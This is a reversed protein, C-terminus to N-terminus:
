ARGYEPGPIFSTCGNAYKETGICRSRIGCNSNPVEHGEDSSCGSAGDLGANILTILDFVISYCNQPPSSVNLIHKLYSDFSQSFTRKSALFRTILEASEADLPTTLVQTRTGPAAEPFPSIRTLLFKKRKDVLLASENDANNTAGSNNHEQKNTEEDEDSSSSSSSSSSDESSSHRRKRKSKSSKKKKPEDTQPADGGTNNSTKRTIDSSAEMYWQAVYFHRAHLLAPDSPSSVALYDLLLSQLHQLLSYCRKLYRWGNTQDRSSRYFFCVQIRDEPNNEKENEKDGGKKKKKHKKPKTEEASDNNTDERVQKLLQDITDTRLQSTVADRRLRAAVVGLYELSVVRLSMDVNKNSFNQVLLKGLLSLLLEAAPWEPKNVTSLLDQLIFCFM